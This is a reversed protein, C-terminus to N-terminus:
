VRGVEGYGNAGANSRLRESEDDRAGIHREGVGDGYGYGDGGRSYGRESITLEVPRVM